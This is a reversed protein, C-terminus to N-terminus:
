NKPQHWDYYYQYSVKAVVEAFTYALALAQGREYIILRQKVLDIIVSPENSHYEDEANPKLMLGFGLISDRGPKTLQDVIVHTVYNDDGLQPAADRIAWMAMKPLQHGLWHVYVYLSGDSTKIEAMRRDGM